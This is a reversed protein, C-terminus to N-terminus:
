ASAPETQRSFSLVFDAAKSAAASAKFIFRSDDQLSKLWSALYAQTNSLDDSQPIALESCMFAAAMEARLEGEAYNGKWTCRSESWHTLEHLVTSYFEKEKEFRQKPVMQIHDTAPCYFCRNGGFRIDAETAAIADEAPAFDVFEDNQTEPEVDILHRLRKPLEVQEASFVTYQKLMAFQVEVEEGTAPDEKTKKIPAYYIIGCGWEGPKVHSPRRMVTAGLDRWQNFTAYWKNTFGHDQRHLELLLPNIGRYKKSSVVNAPAGCNPSTSWPKRWPITGQKLSDIIKLTIEEQIQKASKAM